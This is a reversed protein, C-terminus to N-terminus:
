EQPSLDPLNALDARKHKCNREEEKPLVHDLVAWPKLLFAVPNSFEILSVETLSM